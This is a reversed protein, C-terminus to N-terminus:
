GRSDTVDYVAIELLLNSLQGFVVFAPLQKISTSPTSNLAFECLPLFVDWNDKYANVYCQVVQELSRHM